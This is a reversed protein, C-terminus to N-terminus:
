DPFYHYYLAGLYPYQLGGIVSVKIISTVIQYLQSTPKKVCIALVGNM